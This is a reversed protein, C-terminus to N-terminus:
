LAEGLTLVRTRFDDDLESLRLLEVHRGIRRACEAEIAGRHAEPVDDVVLDVDSAADPEGWAFSGVLFVRALALEACGFRSQM